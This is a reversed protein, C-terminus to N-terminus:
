FGKPYKKKILKFNKKSMTVIIGNINEKNLNIKRFFKDTIHGGNKKILHLGPAVDWIKIINLKIFLDCSGDLIKCIKYGISGSEIYNPIQLKKIISKIVPIPKPYNDIISNLNHNKKSYKIKDNFMEKTEPNYVVSSIIKSNKVFSAQTVYGNFNDYLSRTGDIPDIIFGTWKKKIKEKSKLEESIISIDNFRKKINKIWMNNAIIDINKKLNKQKKKIKIKKKRKYSIIERGVSIATKELFKQVKIQM